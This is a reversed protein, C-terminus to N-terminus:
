HEAPIELKLARRAVEEFHAVFHVTIGSKLSEPLESYQARNREPLLVTKVGSLRAGVLKERIGGVPLVQGTLTLEGTMALDPAVAQNVLLSLLATAMAIGASPGDKPTAGEPVHLHVARQHFLRSRGPLRENLAQVYSYAIRSSEQMVEGLQGTLRLREGTSESLPLAEIPLVEGGTPTWALGRVLGPRNLIEYSNRAFDPPGLLEELDTERISIQELGETLFKLASKRLLSKLNRELGRIGVERSYEEILRNLAGPTLRFQDRSLGSEELQKPLLHKRAIQRKEEPIYGPLRLVEMRDLLASPISELTNATAIFLVNSLDFRLDLYHDLFDINQEPDLVELLVSQPDGRFNGRGIKDIEDLLIVPNVSQTQRLAQILRGPMAGVYTRRHGKLESEDSLGGVSFRYFERGLARAVSRGLSTKGVGPPGVFCLIAGKLEGKLKRVAIFELIRQKVDELGYHDQELIRRVRKLNLQDATFEGWPLSSVLDIYQHVIQLEPSNEELMEYRRLEDEMRQQAEDSLAKGELREQLRQLDLTKRDQELGLERQIERLQERLFFERQHKSVREDIKQSIQEKLLSLDYEERLLLLTREMRKALDTTELIKQLDHSKANTMSAALDTLMAPENIDIQNLLMYMEQSFTPNHPIIEKLTSMIAAAAAKLEDTMPPKADELYATQALFHGDDRSFRGVRFRKLTSIMFQCSEDPLEVWRLIYGLTGVRHLQSASQPRHVGLEADETSRRVMILGVMKDEHHVERLWRSTEPDAGITTLIGPFVPRQFVPLVPIQEPLDSTTIVTGESDVLLIRDRKPSPSPNKVHAM